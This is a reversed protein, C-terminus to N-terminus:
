ELGLRQKILAQWAKSIKHKGNLWNTVNSQTTGLKGALEYRKLNHQIMYQNIQKLLEDM